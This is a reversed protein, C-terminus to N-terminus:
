RIDFSSYSDFLPRYKVEIHIVTGAGPNTQLIHIFKQIKDTRGQACIEVRGDPLNRAYGKLNHHMAHRKTVARFGVGQVTGTVFIHIEQM